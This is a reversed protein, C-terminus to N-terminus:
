YLSRYKKFGHWAYQLILSLSKLFPIREVERYIKWVYWGAKLKNSSVTGTHVRYYGLPEPYAFAFPITKLISLWLGYDQRRKLPPMFLRGLKQIDYVATLCGIDCTILIDDYSVKKRAKSTGLFNGNSDIYHYPSFSFAIDKTLMFNIQKELKDATWLDDSDCFAIFRGTAHRISNNRAAAAGSEENLRFLKIRSDLKLYAEIINCTEDTSADDTILLEWNDYTQAIICEITQKIYDESFHSPTIISVKM